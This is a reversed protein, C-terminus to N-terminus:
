REKNGEALWRFFELDEYLDSQEQATIRDLEDDIAPAQSRPAGLWLSVALLIVTATALGGATVWRPVALWPRRTPVTGALARQRAIRLRNVTGPTMVDVGADLVKKVETVLCEDNRNKM